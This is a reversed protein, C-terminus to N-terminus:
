KDVTIESTSDLSSLRDLKSVMLLLSCSRLSGMM